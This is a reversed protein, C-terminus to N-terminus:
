ELDEARLSCEELARRHEAIWAALEPNAMAELTPSGFGGGGAGDGAGGGAGDSVRRVVEDAVAWQRENEPALLGGPGIRTLCAQSEVGIYNRALIGALTFEFDSVGTWTAPDLSWVDSFGPFESGSGPPVAGEGLMLVSAGPGAALQAVAAVTRTIVPRTQSLAEHVCLVAGTGAVPSCEVPPAAERRVLEPQIATVASAALAPLMLWTLGPLGSAPRSRQRGAAWGAAAATMAAAALVFLAVRAISVGDTLEWGVAPSDSGWRPAAALFSPGPRGVPHISAQAPVVLVLGAVAVAGLVAWRSPALSTVLYGLPAWLGVAAVSGIVALPDPSGATAEGATRTALPAFGLAFGGLSAAWCVAMTRIARALPARGAIPPALVSGPSGALGCAAGLVTAALALLVADERLSAEFGPWTLPLWSRRLSGSEWVTGAVGVLAFIAIWRTPV